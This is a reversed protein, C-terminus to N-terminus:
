GVGFFKKPAATYRGAFTLAALLVLVVIITGSNSKLWGM